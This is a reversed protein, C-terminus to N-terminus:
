ALRSVVIVIVLIFHTGDTQELKLLSVFDPDQWTLQRVRKMFLADIRPSNVLRAVFGTEISIAARPHGYAVPLTMLNGM